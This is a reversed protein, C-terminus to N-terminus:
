SKPLKFFISSVLSLLFPPALTSKLENNSQTPPPAGGYSHHAITSPGTASSGILGGTMRISQAGQSITRPDRATAFLLREMMLWKGHSAKTREQAWSRSSGNVPFRNQPLVAGCFVSSGGNVLEPLRYATAFAVRAGVM